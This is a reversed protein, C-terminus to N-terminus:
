ETADPSTVQIPPEHCVKVLKDKHWLGDEISGDRKVLKGRGCKQGNVIQGKYMDTEFMGEDFKDQQISGDSLVKKGTGHPKDDKM